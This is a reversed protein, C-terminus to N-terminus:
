QSAFVALTGESNNLSFLFLSLTEANLCLPSMLPRWINMHLWGFASSKLMIQKINIGWSKVFLFSLLGWSPFIITIFSFIESSGFVWLLCQTEMILIALIGLWVSNERLSNEECSTILFLLLSTDNYSTMLVLVVMAVSTSVIQSCLSTSTMWLYRGLLLLNRTMRLLAQASTTLVVRWVTKSSPKSTPSCWACQAFTSM